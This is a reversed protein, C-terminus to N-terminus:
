REEYHAAPAAAAAPAPATAAPAASAAPATSDSKVVLKGDTDVVTIPGYNELAPKTVTAEGVVVITAQDPRIYKQAAALAQEPTVADIEKGFRDWYDDPLDYTRLDAVLSAIKDPTEIRLPFRDILYHKANRLEEASPPEKVIRQLHENFAAMAQSTVENRVAAFASFPALQVREDVDSYAGYTLSRKERLDMFLRSAASGGLVQNAVLLPIFDPANRALALNGYYIVSQVSQPRDVLVVKRAGASALPPYDLPPVKRRQWGAFAREVGQKVQEPTVDGAVVLFANNPAFHSQHWAALDTRKVRKVVDETTDIHAYPHAGYLSKNFERNALFRPNQSQLELRALERKKLKDLEKQDFAPKTAVEALLALAEDFHEALATMSVVTRDTDNDVNLHAGLFDIAEAIKASPRKYSGEKLMAATLHALGPMKEPDAASGSRVVLEIQVVPLQHLEVTDLEMGANSQSREIKPFRVQPQPGPAPPQEKAVPNKQVTVTTAAAPVTTQQAPPAQTTTSSCAALLACALAIVCAALSRSRNM